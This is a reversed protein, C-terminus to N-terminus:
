RLVTDSLVNQCRSMLMRYSRSWSKIAVMSVGDDYCFVVRHYVSYQRLVTDSLVNQCRSIIIVMIITAITIVEQDGHFRWRWLLLCGQSLCPQRRSHRHRKWHSFLCEPMKINNKGYNSYDHSWSTVVVISVSDDYCFVVRHYVSYQRLVTNSLVNQCRSIIIEM